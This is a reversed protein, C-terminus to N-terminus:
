GHLHEDRFDVDVLDYVQMMDRFDHAGRWSPNESGGIRDHANLVINFDGIVM